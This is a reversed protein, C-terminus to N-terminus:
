PKEMDYKYEMLGTRAKIGNKGIFKTKPFDNIIAMFWSENVLRSADLSQYLESPLKSLSRQLIGKNFAEKCLLDKALLNQFAITQLLELEHMIRKTNKLSEFPAPIASFIKRHKNIPKPLTKILSLLYPFVTYFDILRYIDISLSEHESKELVLLIRYVCHNIDQAPHYMLM